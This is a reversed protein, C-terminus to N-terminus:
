LVYLENLFCINEELCIRDNGYYRVRIFRDRGIVDMKKSRTLIRILGISLRIPMGTLMYLLYAYQASLHLHFM